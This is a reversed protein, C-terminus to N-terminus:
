FLAAECLSSARKNKVVCAGCVRNGRHSSIFEKQCRLCRRKQKPQTHCVLSYFYPHLSEDLSKSSKKQINSM